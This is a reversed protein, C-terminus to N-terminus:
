RFDDSTFIRELVPLIHHVIVSAWYRRNLSFRDIDSRPDLDYLSASIQNLFTVTLNGAHNKRPWHIQVALPLSRHRITWMGTHSSLKDIMWSSGLRIRRPIRMAPLRPWSYGKLNETAMEKWRSAQARETLSMWTHQESYVPPTMVSQLHFIPFHHMEQRMIKVAHRTLPRQNLTYHAELRTGQKWRKLSVQTSWWANWRPSSWQMTARLGRPEPWHSVGDWFQSQDGSIKLGLWSLRVPLGLITNPNHLQEQRWSVKVPRTGLRNALQQWWLQLISEHNDAANIRWEEMGYPHQWQEFVGFDTRAAQQLRGQEWWEIQDLTRWAAPDWSDIVHSWIWSNHPARVIVTRPNWAIWADGGCPIFLSDPGSAVLFHLLYRWTLQVEMPNLWGELELPSQSWPLWPELQTLSKGKLLLTRATIDKQLGRLWEETQQVDTWFGRTITSINPSFQAILQM